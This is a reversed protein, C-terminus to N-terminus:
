QRKKSRQTPGGPPDWLYVQLEYFELFGLLALSGLVWLLHGLGQSLDQVVDFFEAFLLELQVQESTRPVGCCPGYGSVIARFVESQSAIREGLM